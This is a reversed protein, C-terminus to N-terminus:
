GLGTLDKVGFNRNNSGVYDPNESSIENFPLRCTGQQKLILFALRRVYQNEIEGDDAINDVGVRRSCGDLALNM